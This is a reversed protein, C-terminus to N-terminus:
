ASRTKLFFYISTIVAPFILILLIYFIASLSEPMNTKQPKLHFNDMQSEPKKVQIGIGM